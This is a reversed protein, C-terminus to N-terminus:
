GRPKLASFVTGLQKGDFFDYLADQKAGNIIAMDIGRNLVLNAAHLKTLMGGTGLSSGKGGAYGCITDDIQTVLPILKADSHTRPDCDYLGDIDSLVVLLDAQVLQAVIASLTDNEGFTTTAGGIEDVSVTDNENIIPITRLEILRMLTNVVNDKIAGNDIVDRTLLVQAVTHNYEEFLKDYLYMLECQGIAALAQKTPMDAPRKHMGLKGMGVGIAGSSVVLIERGANQLDAIAKVLSEVRRINLRGTAHTLTSTGIKIVVRKKDDLKM